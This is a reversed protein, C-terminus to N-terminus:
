YLSGWYQADNYTFSLEFGNLEFNTLTLVKRTSSKLFLSYSLGLPKINVYYYSEIVLTAYETAATYQVGTDETFTISTLDFELYTYHYSRRAKERNLVHFVYTQGEIEEKYVGATSTDFSVAPLDRGFVGQDVSHHSYEFLELDSTIKAFDSFTGNVFTASHIESEESNVSSADESAIFYMPVYINKTEHKSNIYEISKINWGALSNYLDFEIESSDSDVYRDLRLTGVENDDIIFAHELVAEYSVRNMLVDEDLIDKIIFPENVTVEELDESSLTVTLCVIGAKSTDLDFSVNYYETVYEFDINQYSGGSTFYVSNINAMMFEYIEEQTAGIKLSVGGEVFNFNIGGSAIAVASNSIFAKGLKISISNALEQGISMIAMLHSMSTEDAMSVVSALHTGIDSLQKYLGKVGLFAGMEDVLAIEKSSLAALANSVILRKSLLLNIIYQYNMNSIANVLLSYEAESFQALLGDLLKGVVLIHDASINELDELFAAYADQAEKTSRDFAGEKDLLPLVFNKVISLIAEANKADKFLISVFARLDYLRLKSLVSLSGSESPVYSGGSQFLSVNRTYNNAFKLLGSHFNENDEQTIVSSSFIDYIHDKGITLDFQEWIRVISLQDEVTLSELAELVENAIIVGSQNYNEYYKQSYEDIYLNDFKDKYTEVISTFEADNKSAAIKEMNELDEYLVGSITYGASTYISTGKTQGQVKKVFVQIAKFMDVLRINKACTVLSEFVLPISTISTNEDSRIFTAFKIIANVVESSLKNEVAYEQVFEEMESTSVESIYTEILKSILDKTDEKVGEDMDSKESEPLEEPVEPEPIVIDPQFPSVPANEDGSGGCSSFLLSTALFLGAVIRKSKRKM